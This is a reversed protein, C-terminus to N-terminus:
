RPPPTNNSELRILASLNLSRTFVSRDHVKIHEIGPCTPDKKRTLAEEVAGVAISLKICARTNSGEAAADAVCALLYSEVEETVELGAMSVTAHQSNRASAQHLMSGQPREESGLV